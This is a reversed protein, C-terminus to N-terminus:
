KMETEGLLVTEGVTDPCRTKAYSMSRLRFSFAVGSVARSV